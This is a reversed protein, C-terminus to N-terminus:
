KAATDLLKQVEPNRALDRACHGADDRAAADAGHSLLLRTCEANNRLAAAILATTGDKMRANPNAGHELLMRGVVAPEECRAISYILPTVGNADALNPDAKYAL